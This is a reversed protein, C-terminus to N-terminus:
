THLGCFFNIEVSIGRRVHNEMVHNKMAPNKKTHVDEQYIFDQMVHNKASM